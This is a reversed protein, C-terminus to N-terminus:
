SRKMTASDMSRMGSSDSAATNMPSHSVCTSSFMEEIIPMVIITPMTVSTAM